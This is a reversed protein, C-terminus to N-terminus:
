LGWGELLERFGDVSDPLAAHDVVAGDDSFAFVRPLDRSKSLAAEVQAVPGGTETQSDPDLIQIPKGELDAQIATVLLGTEPTQDGSERLILIKVAQSPTPPPPPNPGNGAQITWSLSKLAAADGDLYPVVVLLDYQGPENPSFWVLITGRLDQLLRIDCDRGKPFIHVIGAQLEDVAIGEIELWVSRGVDVTEPGSLTPQAHCVSVVVLWAILAHARM